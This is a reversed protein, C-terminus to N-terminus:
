LHTFQLEHLNLFKGSIVSPVLYRFGPLAIEFGVTKSTDWHCLVHCLTNPCICLNKCVYFTELFHQKNRMNKLPLKEEQILLAKEKSALYKISLWFKLPFMGTIFNGM